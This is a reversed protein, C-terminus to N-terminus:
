NRGHFTLQWQQSETTAWWKWCYIQDQMESSVFGIFCCDPSMFCPNSLSTFNATVASGTLHLKWWNTNRHASVTDSNGLQAPQLLLSFWSTSLVPCMGPAKQTPQSCGPALDTSNLPQPANAVDRTSWFFWNQVNLTMCLVFWPTTHDPSHSQAWPRLYLKLWGFRREM